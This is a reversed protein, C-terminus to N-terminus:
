AQQPPKLGAVFHYLMAGLTLVWAALALYIFYKPVVQLAAVPLGQALKGTAATYMGLPFVMSWYSPSYAFAPRTTWHNWLRLVFVVPLWWTSVAWFLVNYSKVFPLLEALAGTRQMATAVGTGALVVIASAGVSIWYAAGVEEEGLHVFTLRYFILGILLIYLLSGLLVLGLLSLIGLAFPFDSGPLLASGLVALSETAVVLLLWGGNLGQEVTPKERKLSIGLVFSYGLLLWAGLAGLWLLSGALQNHRLLVFQSGLLATAPVLALFTAGKDHSTLAEWFKAPFLALRLVLLALLVPYALLNVYFLGDALWDLQQAQAALSIIGTSMVLAFYVPPFQQIVTKM